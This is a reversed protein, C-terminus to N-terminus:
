EYWVNINKTQQREAAVLLDYISGFTTLNKALRIVYIALLDRFYSM